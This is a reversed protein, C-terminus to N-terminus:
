LQDMVRKALSKIEDPSPKMSESGFVSLMLLYRKRRASVSIKENGGTIQAEDGIGAVMRWEGYKTVGEYDSKASEETPSLRLTVYLQAAQDKNIRLYGCISENPTTTKTTTQVPGGLLRAADAETVLESATATKGSGGTSSGHSNSHSSCGSALLVCCLVYSFYNRYRKM